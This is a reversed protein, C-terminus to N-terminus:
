RRWVIRSFTLFSLHVFLLLLAIILEYGSDNLTGEKMRLGLNVKLPGLMFAEFYLKRQQLSGAPIPIM